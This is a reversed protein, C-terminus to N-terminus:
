SGSCRNWRSLLQGGLEQIHAIAADTNAHAFYPLWAAPGDQKLMGGNTTEGNLVIPPQNQEGAQNTEGGANNCDMDKM